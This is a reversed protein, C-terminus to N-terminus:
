KRFIIKIIKSQTYDKAVKDIIQYIVFAIKMQFRM